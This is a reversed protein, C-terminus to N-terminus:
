TIQVSALLEPVYLTQFNRFVFLRRDPATKLGSPMLAFITQLHTPSGWCRQPRGIISHKIRLQFFNSYVIELVYAM